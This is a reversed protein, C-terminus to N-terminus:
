LQVSGVMQPLSSRQFLVWPGPHDHSDCIWLSTLRASLLGRGDIRWKQHEQPGPLYQRIFSLWFNDALVQSQTWRHRGVLDESDYLAQPLSVDRRGMLLMNPTVPDLDAVDASIYGLPKSNLIDEVETLLTQLVSEPVVQDRLVIRLSTKISRIEREWTGEFHPAAPPNFQFRIRQETLQEQLQPSMAEFSEQLERCGGTFNTGNDCLVEFPKGRRAIFRCLSLLFAETDLGELLDLHLCRTTMCKFLIGWRKEHRRGIKVLFPGFCDVGVSYFPPKFLRLRAPPLDAM